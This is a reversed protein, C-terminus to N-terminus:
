HERSFEMPFLRASRDMNGTEDYRMPTAAADLVDGGTVEAVVLVHDGVRMEDTIRCDLWAVAADLLPPASVRRRVRQGALKDAQRGSRTGFHRALDLEGSPLVNIACRRSAWMLTWTANGPNVSIALLLPTFAVQTIWAATFAGEAGGHEASVVYLGTTLRRFLEIPPAAM